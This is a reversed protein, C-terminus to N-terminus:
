FPRYRHIETIHNPTSNTTFKATQYNDQVCVRRVGVLQIGLEKLNKTAYAMGKRMKYSSTYGVRTFNIETRKSELFIDPLQVAGLGCGDKYKLMNAQRYASANAQGPREIYRWPSLQNSKHKYQLHYKGLMSRLCSFM